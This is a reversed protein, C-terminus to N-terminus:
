MIGCRRYSVVRIPLNRVSSAALQPPWARWLGYFPRSLGGVEAIKCANGRLLSAFDEVSYTDFHGIYPRREGFAGFSNQRLRFLAMVESFSLMLGCLRLVLDSRPLVIIRLALTFHSSGLALSGIM